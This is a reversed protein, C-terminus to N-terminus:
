GFDVNPANEAGATTAQFFDKKQFGAMGAVISGPFVQVKTNYSKVAGNYEDRAFSIRNETGELQVLLDRYAQTTQLEPYNESIILLKSLTSEIQNATQVQQQQTTSTQWQSRLKTIEELTSVEFNGSGKITSVLNPILDVRRQYQTQVKAWSEEVGVQSSVLDNYLGFYFLAALIIIVVIGIVGFLLANKMFQYYPQLLFIFIAAPLCSLFDNCNKNMSPGIFLLSLM